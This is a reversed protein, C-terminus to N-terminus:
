GNLLQPGTIPETETFISLGFVDAPVTTVLGSDKPAVTAEFSEENWGSAGPFMFRVMVGGVPNVAGDNCPTIGVVTVAGAILIPFM